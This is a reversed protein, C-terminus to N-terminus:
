ATREIGFKAANLGARTWAADTHPDVDIVEHYIVATTGPSIAAGEFVDVDSLVYPKITSGGADSNLARTSLQTMLPIVGVPLPAHTYTDILGSSAAAVYTAADGDSVLDFNDTKDADSGTWDSNTGNGDMPYPDVRVDGAFDNYPKGQYATADVGDRVMIDDFYRYEGLLSGGWAIVNATANGSAQTDGSASPIWGTDVKNVLVEYTGSNGIAVKMQISYWTNDTLTNTSTALDTDAAGRFSITRDSNRVLSCQRTGVDFLSLIRDYSGGGIYPAGSSKMACMIIWTGQQDLTLSVITVYGVSYGRLCNGFRGSGVIAAGGDVSTFDIGLDATVAGPYDGGWTVRNAM